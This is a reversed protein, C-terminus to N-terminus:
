KDCLGSEESVAFAHLTGGPTSLAHCPIGQRYKGGAVPEAVDLQATEEFASLNTEEM